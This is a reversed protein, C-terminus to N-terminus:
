RANASCSNCIGTDGLSEGKAISSTIQNISVVGGGLRTMAAEFSCSTRTSPEWFASCMVKGNLLNIQGHKEVLARMEQAVGFLIHLDKRDFSKVSLVHKQLFPSKQITAVSRPLDKIYKTTVEGEEPIISPRPGGIPESFLRTRNPSKLEPTAPVVSSKRPSSATASVTLRVSSSVNKGSSGVTNGDLYVTAGRLVVRHVNGYLTKGNLLANVASPAV